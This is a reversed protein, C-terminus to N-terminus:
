RVYGLSRLRELVSPDVPLGQSSRAPQAALRAIILRWSEPVQTSRSLDTQELPDKSLEYLETRGDAHSILKMAGSILAIEAPQVLAAHGDAERVDSSEAVIARRAVREVRRLSVGDLDSPATVGVVDLITPLVDVSGVPTEVVTGTTAHPYKVMLPVHLEHQYLSLGHGILSREGLGEGHDATVIILSNDYVGSERLRALLAGLQQDLYAIAGDYQSTLHERARGDLVRTRRIAVDERLKNYTFWRFSPDAGQYRTDFPPPPVYPVHADMYNLFLFFPQGTGIAHDLLGAAKRNVEAATWFSPEADVTRFATAVLERLTEALFYPPTPSFTQAPLDSDYYAFGRGFGLESRVYIANAAIGATLYGHGALLVPLVPAEAAIPRGAPFGLSVQAGHRHSNWGTFISAHTPLTHNSAASAARYVTFGERAWQRLNPTTDREYGYVSLHDARVTDLTILIVNPQGVGAGPVGVPWRPTAPELRAMASSLLVCAAALLITWASATRAADSGSFRWAVRTVVRRLLLAVVLVSSLFALAIFGRTLVPLHARM